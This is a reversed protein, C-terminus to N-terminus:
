LPDNRNREEREYFTRTAQESKRVADPHSDFEQTKRRGYFLAVGLVAIGIVILLLWMWETM